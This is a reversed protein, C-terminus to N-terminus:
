YLTKIRRSPPGVALHLPLIVLRPIFSLPFLDRACIHVLALRPDSRTRVLALRCSCPVLWTVLISPSTTHHARANVPVCAAPALQLPLHLHTVSIQRCSESRPPMQPMQPQHMMVGSRFAWWLGPVWMKRRPVKWTKLPSWVQGQRSTLIHLLLSRLYIFYSFYFLAPLHLFLIM